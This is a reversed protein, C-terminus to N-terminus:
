MKLFDKILSHPCACRLGSTEGQARCCCACHTLSPDLMKIWCTLVPSLWSWRQCVTLWRCPSLSLSTICDDWLIFIDVSQNCATTHSQQVCDTVGWSASSWWCGAFCCLLWLDGTGSPPKPGFFGGHYSTFCRRPGSSHKAHLIWQFHESLRIHELKMSDM